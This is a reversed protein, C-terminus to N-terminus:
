NHLPEHASLSIVLSCIEYMCKREL